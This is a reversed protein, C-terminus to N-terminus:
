RTFLAIALIVTVLPLVKKQLRMTKQVFTGTIVPASVTPCCRASLTKM